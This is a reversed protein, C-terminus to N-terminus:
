PAGGETPPDEELPLLAAQSFRARRKAAYVWLTLGLFGALLAGAVIGSVVGSLAVLEASM